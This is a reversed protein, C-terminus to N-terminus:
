IPRGDLLRPKNGVDGMAHRMFFRRLPPIQNVLGLGLDRALRIPALDNSFLRNLIDTTAALTVNDVRRKREYERLVSLHGVDLGLRHADVLTEALAAVDRLGLNYGQGAIPHIAHAADGALVFRPATYTRALQLGLPYAFRPGVPRIAGWHSGFRRAVEATFQADDLGLFYAVQDSRETWVISSRNGTMPLIAFPGSPLFLEHAVGEHPLEHEITTVIASQQYAWGITKIGAAKRLASDKGDAAIVLAANICSGDALLTAISVPGPDAASVTAPALIKLNPLLGAAQMLGLRIHRNEILYGLPEGADGGPANPSLERPDFHLSLPSPAEGPRGDTVLIDNIPQVFEALHPWINLAKFLRVSSAAIASVRGDFGPLTMNPPAQGDILVVNLGGTALALGLSLGVMGAGVVVIPPLDTEFKIAENM